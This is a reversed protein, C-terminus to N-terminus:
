FEAIHIAARVPGISLGKKAGATKDRLQSIGVIEDATKRISRWLM